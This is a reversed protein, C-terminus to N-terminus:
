ERYVSWNGQTTVDLIYARTEPVNVKKKGKYDGTVDALVAVSTGDAYKLECKFPGSGEHVVDFTAPGQILDIIQDKDGTFMEAVRYQDKKFNTTDPKNTTTTKEKETKDSNCAIVILFMVILSFAFKAHNKM